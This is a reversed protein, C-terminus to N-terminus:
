TDWAAPLILRKIKYNRFYSLFIPELVSDGCRVSDSCTGFEVYRQHPSKTRKSNVPIFGRAASQIGMNGLM